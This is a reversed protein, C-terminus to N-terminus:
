AGWDIGICTSRAIIVPFNGSAQGSLGGTLALVATLAMVWKRKGTM